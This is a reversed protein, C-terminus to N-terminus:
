LRNWLIQTIVYVMDRTYIKDNDGEKITKKGLKWAVIAELCDSKQKESLSQFTLWLREDPTM